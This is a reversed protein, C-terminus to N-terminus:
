EGKRHPLLWYSGDSDPILDERNRWQDCTPCQFTNSSIGDCTAINHIDLLHNRAVEIAEEVTEYPSDESLKSQDCGEVSCNATWGAEYISIHDLPDDLGLEEEAEHLSVELNNVAAALDGSEWNDIVERAAAILERVGASAEPM